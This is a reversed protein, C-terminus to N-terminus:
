RKFDLHRIFSEQCGRKQMAFVRIAGIEGNGFDDFSGAALLERRLKTGTNADM